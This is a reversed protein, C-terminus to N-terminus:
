VPVVRYQYRNGMERQKALVLNTAELLSDLEGSYWFSRTWNGWSLDPGLEKFEIKYKTNQSAPEVLEYNKEIEETSVYRTLSPVWFTTPFAEIIEPLKAKLQFKM